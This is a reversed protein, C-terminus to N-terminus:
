FQFYLFESVQNLSLLSATALCGVFLAWVVTPRWRLTKWRTLVVHKESSMPSYGFAPYYRAFIQQTNPVYWVFSFLVFALTLMKIDARAFYAGEFTFGFGVLWSMNPQLSSPLNSFGQLVVMASDFSDARFFILSFMIAAMTVSRSIILSWWTGIRYKYVSRWLYNIVLYIGHLGGWLVFTWGAGHWLGVLLMVILPTLYRRTAGKLRQGLPVYVYDRFFRSMTMHWRTWVEIISAAKYPSNFNIPLRIGFMRALGIAMDSYGSFDFYLQFTYAMTGKFSTFFDLTEGRAASEFVPTAMLALNDAIVVKKFLGIAFISLGIVINLDVRRFLDLRKFQPLMQRHHVIPGAILQPFFTVFLTYNLLSPESAKGKSADVLFAIQQFTFFSIALPLIITELHFDAVGTANISDVFFNAYKFYGILGLNFAVGAFLVLKVSAKQKARKALFNGLVFNTLVSVSILILYIPNWYGYFFLSSCVLWAIAASSVGRAAIVYYGLLVIPLFLFIFEPSNFLM